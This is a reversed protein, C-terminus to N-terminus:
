SSVLPFLGTSKKTGTQDCHSLNRSASDGALYHNNEKQGSPVSSLDSNKKTQCITAGVSYNPDPVQCNTKRSSEGPSIVTAPCFFLIGASGHLRKIITAKYERKSM